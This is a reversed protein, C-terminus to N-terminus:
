EITLPLTKYDLIVNINPNERAGLNQTNKMIKSKINKIKRSIKRPLKHQKQTQQKDGIQSLNVEQSTTEDQTSIFTTSINKHNNAQQKHRLNSKHEDRHLIKLYSSEIFGLPYM